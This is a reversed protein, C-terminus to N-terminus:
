FISNGEIHSAQLLGAMVLSIATLSEVATLKRKWENVAWLEVELLITEIGLLV